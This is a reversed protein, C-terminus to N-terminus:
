QKIFKGVKEHGDIQVKIIYISNQLASVDIMDEVNKAQMVVRGSMDSICVSQANEANIYSTAPNPYVNFTEAKNYRVASGGGITEASLWLDDIWFDTGSKYSMRLNITNASDLPTGEITTFPYEVMVFIQDEFEEMPGWGLDVVNGTFQLFTSNSSIEYFNGGDVSIEVKPRANAIESNYPWWTQTGIGFSLVFDTNGKVDMDGTALTGPKYSIFQIRGNSSAGEYKSSMGWTRAILAAATDAQVDKFTFPIGSTFGGISAYAEATGVEGPGVVGTGDANPFSFQGEVEGKQWPDNYMGFTEYFITSPLEIGDEPAKFGIQDIYYETGGLMSLSDDANITIQITNYLDSSKFKGLFATVTTWEDQPLNEMTAGGSVIEGRDNLLTISVKSSIPSKGAVPYVQVQLYPTQSLTISKNFRLFVSKYSGEPRIYKAALPSENELPFPNDAISINGSPTTIATVMTSDTWLSDLVVLNVDEFDCLLVDKPGFESGTQGYTLGIVCSFILTYIKRKM